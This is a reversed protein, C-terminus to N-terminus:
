LRCIPVALPAADAFAQPPQYSGNPDSPPANLALPPVALAGNNVRQFKVLAMPGTFECAFGLRPAVRTTAGPANKRVTFSSGLRLVPGILTFHKPQAEIQLPGEARASRHRFATRERCRKKSM